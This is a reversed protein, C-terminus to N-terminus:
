GERAANYIQTRNMAGKVNVDPAYLYIDRNTKYM